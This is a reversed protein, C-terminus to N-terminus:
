PVPAERVLQPVTRPDPDITPQTKNMRYRPAHLLILGVVFTAVTKVGFLNWLYGTSLCAFSANIVRAFALAAFWRGEVLARFMLALAWGHYLAIAVGGLILGGIGGALLLYPYLAFVFGTGGRRASNLRHSPTFRAMVYYLGFRTGARTAEQDSPRVWSDFDARLAPIDVDSPPGARDALYWLQGQVAARDAFRRWARGSDELAGYAILIAPLSVLAFLIPATLLPRLRLHGRRAVDLLVVPAGASAAILLLSTFKEAFLVSVLLVSGLLVLGARRTSPVAIVIGILPAIVARNMLISRYPTGELRALYTFRDVHDILPLGYRLALFALTAAALCILLALAIALARAEDRWPPPVTTLHQRLERWSKEIPGASAAFLMLQLLFLRAFAGTPAGVTATESMSAGSEIAVGSAFETLRLVLLPALLIFAAPARRALVLAFACLGALAFAAWVPSPMIATGACLAGAGAAWPLLALLMGPAPSVDHRHQRNEM